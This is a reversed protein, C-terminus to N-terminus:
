HAGTMNATLLKPYFKFAPAIIKKSTSVKEVQAYGDWHNGRYHVLDGPNLNNKGDPIIVEHPASQQGGFYYIDDLSHFQQSADGLEIYNSQMLEYALRCVQSSFTCVIYDTKSLILIDMVVGMVSDDTHRKFVAASNARRRDGYFTYNKYKLKAEDFVSPDDTAIYVRREVPKLQRYVRQHFPSKIDDIWEETRSMMQRRADIFQFYREVEKMYQELSHFSAETNIKDTRRVHIGVVPSESRNNFIKMENSIDFKPRMLYSALQGAFWIFPAGHLQSLEESIHNPVAPPIWPFSSSIDVIYPCGVAQQTDLVKQDISSYYIKSPIDNVTCKDSLPLFNDIWWKTYLDSYGITSSLLLTRGTAYAMQFCHM